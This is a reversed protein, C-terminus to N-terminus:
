SGKPHGVPSSGAGERVVVPREETSSRDGCEENGLPKKEPTQRQQADLKRGHLDKVIRERDGPLGGVLLPMKMHRIACQEEHDARLGVLSRGCTSCRHM